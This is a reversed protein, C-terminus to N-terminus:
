LVIVQNVREDTTSLATVTLIIGGGIRAVETGTGAAGLGIPRGYWGGRYWGGYSRGGRWGYGGGRWGYYGGFHGGGFHGGGGHFGGGGGHFGGGGGFGHASAPPTIAQMGALMLGALAIRVIKM